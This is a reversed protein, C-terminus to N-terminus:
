ESAALIEPGISGNVPLPGNRMQMTLVDGQLPADGIPDILNNPEEALPVDHSRPVPSFVM